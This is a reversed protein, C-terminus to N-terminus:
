HGLYGPCSGERREGSNGEAGGDQAAGAVGVAGASGSSPGSSNNARFRKASDRTSSGVASAHHRKGPSDPGKATAHKKRPSLFNLEGWRNGLGVMRRVGVSSVKRVQGGKSGGAKSRYKDVNDLVRVEEVLSNKKAVTAALMAEMELQLTDLDEMTVGDHESRRLVAHYRPVWQAHESVSIDPLSLPLDRLDVTGVPGSFSSSSKVKKPSFM